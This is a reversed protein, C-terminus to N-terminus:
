SRTRRRPASGTTTSASARSRLIVSKRATMPAYGTRRIQASIQDMFAGCSIRSHHRPSAPKARGATHQKGARYRSAGSGVRPKPVKKRSRDTCGRPRAHGGAARPLPHNMGRASRQRLHARRERRHEHEAAARNNPTATPRAPQAHVQDLHPRCPRHAPSPAAARRRRPRPSRRPSDLRVVPIIEEPREAQQSM